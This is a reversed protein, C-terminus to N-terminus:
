PFGTRTVQVSERRGASRIYYYLSGQLLGVAKSIDNMSTGSCGEQCFLESSVDLIQQWRGQSDTGSRVGRVERKAANDSNKRKLM